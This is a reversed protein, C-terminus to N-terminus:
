WQFQPRYGLASKARAVSFRGRPSDSQIHFVQWRALKATLAREVAQVVDREEVWLPDFPQGEVDAARVVKGLRLVIIDAKGERAFERSTFEGLHKALVRPESSPRPRWTETVTFEAPYGAMVALSSLVVVRPVLEQSAAWLLNYTCRTLLDIQAEPTDEPLPEAVHVVAEVGRVALNTAADADLACQVFEHSTRVPIRETLRIPYTDKLGAALSQALASAGSTILIPKKTGAPQQAFTQPAAAAVGGSQLFKRRHVRGSREIAM